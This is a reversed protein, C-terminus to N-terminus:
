MDQSVVWKFTWNVKQNKSQHSAYTPMFVNYKRDIEYIKKTGM